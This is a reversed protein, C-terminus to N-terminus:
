ALNRSLLADVITQHITPIPQTADLICAAPLQQSETLFGERVRQMYEAGRSELRDAEGQLRSLAVDVPLDFVFTLDPQLGETAIAGVSRIAEVPLGGAHGQYVINALLYRDCIVIEGAEIAPLIQSAVLEARSAMYLLMESKMSLPIEQRHLLIERLSDGLKTGGPDRLSHVMRGRQRYWESLLAVQTSKGGGDVGDLSIFVGSM